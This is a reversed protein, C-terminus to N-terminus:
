KAAAKRLASPMLSVPSRLTVSAIGGHDKSFPFCPRFQKEIVNDYAIEHNILLSKFFMKADIRGGLFDLITKQLKQYVKHHSCQQQVSVLM